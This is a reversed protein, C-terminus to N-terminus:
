LSPSKGLVAPPLRNGMAEAATEYQQQSRIHSSALSEVIPHPRSDVPPQNQQNSLELYIKLRKDMSLAGSNGHVQLWTARNWYEELKDVLYNWQAQKRGLLFIRKAINEPKIMRTVFRFPYEIRENNRNGRILEIIQGILTPRQENNRFVSADDLQQIIDFIRDHVSESTYDLVKSFFSLFSFAFTDPVVVEDVTNMTSMALPLPSTKLSLSLFLFCDIRVLPLCVAPQSHTDVAFNHKEVVPFSGVVGLLSQRHTLTLLSDANRGGLPVWVTGVLAGLRSRCCEDVAVATWGDDYM